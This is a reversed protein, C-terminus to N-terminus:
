ADEPFAELMEKLRYLYRAADALEGTLSLGLDRLATAADEQTQVVLETPLVGASRPWTVHAFRGTDACNTAGRPLTVNPSATLELAHFWANLGMDTSADAPLAAVIAVPGRKVRLSLWTVPTGTGSAYALEAHAIAPPQGPATAVQMQARASSAGGLGDLTALVM